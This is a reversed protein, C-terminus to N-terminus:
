YKQLKKDKQLPLQLTEFIQHSFLDPTYNEKTAIVCCMHLCPIMWRQTFKCSFNMFNDNTFKVIEVRAFTTAKQNNHSQKPNLLDNITQTHIIMWEDRKLQVVHTHFKEKLCIVLWGRQM